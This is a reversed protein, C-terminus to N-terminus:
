IDLEKEIAKIRQDLEKSVSEFDERSKLPANVSIYFKIKPETGSPRVSVKSGDQTYFQLVDSVPLAIEQSKGSVLDKDKRTKYDLFRVVKKGAITDPPANRFKEMMAKIQQEGEAGKRVL